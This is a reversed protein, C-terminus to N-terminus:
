FKDYVVSIDKGRCNEVYHKTVARPTKGSVSDNYTILLLLGLVDNQSLIIDFDDAAEYVTPRYIDYQLCHIIFSGEFQETILKAKDTRFEPGVVDDFSLAAQTSSFYKVCLYLCSMFRLEANFKDHLLGKYESEVDTDPFSSATFMTHLYRDYLDIAQFLARDSYWTILHRSNFINTVLGIMWLREICQKVEIIQELQETLYKSRTATILPEHQAFFPHNLCQKATYRDRWDFCMMHQLLDCFETMSGSSSNFSELWEPKLGFQEAFSSRTRPMYGPGLRVNRWRNAKVLDRLKSTELAVPLNRLIATLLKDNDDATNGLFPRRCLMEYFICGVSWVDSKYDYSPYGLTIEPARYWSTVVRPTQIGQHTYPKALGFDCIKAVNSIGLADKSDGFVLINDPKFDRHIIKRHHIYELGLLIHLMYRKAVRFDLVKTEYIFKRLDYTAFDFVFHMRDDRQDRRAKGLLPSLGANSFPSGFAVRELKIIHPHGLLKNLVDVERSVGLFSIVKETINRKVAYKTNSTPSTAAYVIGFTGEGLKEGRLM